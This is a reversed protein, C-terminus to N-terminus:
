RPAMATCQSKVASSFSIAAQWLRQDGPEYVPLREAYANQYAAQSQMLVRLVPDQAQEALRRMDDAQARLVPIISMNEAREEASWRSAPVAPDGKSWEAQKSAYDTAMPGWEACVPDPESPIATLEPAAAEVTVTAPAATPTAGRNNYGIAGGIAGGIILAVVAAAGAAALLKRRRPSTTQGQNFAALNERHTIDRIAADIAEAPTGADTLQKVHHAAVLHQTSYLPGSPSDVHPVFRTVLDPRLGTEAAVEQATMWRGTPPAHATM